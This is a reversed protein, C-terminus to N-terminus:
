HLGAPPVTPWATRGPPQPREGPLPGACQVVSEGPAERTFRRCILQWSEENELFEPGAGIVGCRLAAETVLLSAAEDYEVRCEAATPWDKRPRAVVLRALSRRLVGATDVVLEGEWDPGKVSAAPAFALRIRRGGESSDIGAIWFCHSKRFERALVAEIAFYAVDYQTASRIIARGPRYLPAGTSHSTFTDIAAAIQHGDRDRYRRSRQYLALYPYNRQLLGLRRANESAEDLAIRTAQDLEDPALCAQVVLTPLELPRPTLGIVVELPAASDSAELTLNLPAYGLQRVTVPHPGRDLRPLVLRGTESTFREMRPRIMSVLAFALPRGTVADVVRVTVQGTPVTRTAAQQAPVRGAMTTLAALALLMSTRGPIM